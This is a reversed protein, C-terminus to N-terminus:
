ASWWPGDADNLTHICTFQGKGWNPNFNRTKIPNCPHNRHDKWKSSMKAESCKVTLNAPIIHGTDPHKVQPEPEPIPEPAEDEEVKCKEDTAVAWVKIGCFTLYQNPTGQIKLFKGEIRNKMKSWDGKKPNSVTGFLEDGVFVKVGNLRDECCDNRNLISVKTVLIKDDQFNVKWWAGEPDM